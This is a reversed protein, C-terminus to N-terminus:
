KTLVMKKTESFDNIKARYFYVGSAVKSGNDDTGDWLFDYTGAERYGNALDKVQQGLINYVSLKLDGANPTSISFSTTPNFPNPWNQSLGYTTPIANGGGTLSLTAFSLEPKIQRLEPRGSSYDNYYYTLSHNPNESEFPKLEVSEVGVDLKFHLEAIVGQGTALDPADRTVMSLLGIIVQNKENDISAHKFEFENVRDTFVVKELVAGDSFELPIDLAALEQTNGVELSVVLINDEMAIAKAASLKDVNAAFVMAPILFMVLVSAVLLNRKMM